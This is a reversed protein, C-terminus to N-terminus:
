YGEEVPIDDDNSTRIRSEYPNSGYTSMSISNRDAKQADQLVKRESFAASAHPVTSEYITTAQERGIDEYTSEMEALREHDLLDKEKVMGPTEILIDYATDMDVMGSSLKDQASQVSEGLRDLHKPNAYGIGSWMFNATFAQMLQRDRQAISDKALLGAVGVTLGILTNFVLSGLITTNSDIVTKVINALVVPTNILNLQQAPVGVFDAPMRYLPDLHHLLGEQEKIRIEEEAKRLREEELAQQLRPFRDMYKSPDYGEVNVGPVSPIRTTGEVSM